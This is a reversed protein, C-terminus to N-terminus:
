IPRRPPIIRDRQFRRVNMNDRGEFYQFDTLELHKKERLHESRLYAGPGCDERVVKFPTLIYWDVLRFERYEEITACQPCGRTRKPEAFYQGVLFLKKGDSNPLLVRAKLANLSKVALPDSDLRFQIPTKKDKIIVYSTIGTTELHVFGYTEIKPVVQV